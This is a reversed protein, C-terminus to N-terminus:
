QAADKRGRRGYCEPDTVVTRAAEPVRLQSSYAEISCMARQDDTAASQQKCVSSCVAVADAVAAACLGLLPTARAIVSTATFWAGTIGLCPSYNSSFIYKNAIFSIFLFSSRTTSTQPSIALCHNLSNM